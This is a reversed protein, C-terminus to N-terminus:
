DYVEPNITNERNPTGDLVSLINRSTAVAMAAIAEVTVGAMHPSSIVNELTLLPNDASTPEQEFVDLGAGALHGSILANYLAPEDIIGGRATNVIFTGKKMLGFRTANFMGVTEPSKPCHICVVDAKPLAADLDDAIRYGASRINDQNIYPDHILVTMDFAACRRATRTGIRGFGVILITKGSLEMPPDIHRQTWKDDTVMAHMARNKKALAIILNFAQEAVSTSNATGATLLPVRRATLAPVEVADYGVGIRAVAQMMPSADMEQQRFPTGSLAIGAIDALRPLLEAQGIGAQYIITEIDDRGRMVEIGQKGMTHPLMVKRKNTAM